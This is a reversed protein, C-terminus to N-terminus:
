KLIEILERWDHIHLYDFDVTIDENRAAFPNTDGVTEGKYLVPFMGAGHAGCVDAKISDGCYWVNDASRKAKKLAIEFIVPDPKRIGYESTAIIFEFKNEPLLRNIRDTLAKGSWGINSIVGTRIGKTGLFELLEHM